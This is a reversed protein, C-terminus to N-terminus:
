DGVYIDLGLPGDYSNGEPVHLTVVIQTTSGAELTFPDSPAINSIELPAGTSSPHLRVTGSYSGGCYAGDSAITVQLTVEFTRNPDAVNPGIMQGAPGLDTNPPLCTTSVDASAAYAYVTIDTITVCGFCGVPKPTATPTATHSPTPRATPKPTSSTHSNSTPAPSGGSGETRASRDMIRAMAVLPGSDTVTARYEVGLLLFDDGERWAISLWNGEDTGIFSYITAGSGLDAESDMQQAQSEAALAAVGSALAAQAAANSHFVMAVSKVADTGTEEPTGLFASQYGTGATIGTLAHTNSPDVAYGTGLDALSLVLSQPSVPQAATAAPSSLVVRVPSCGALSV